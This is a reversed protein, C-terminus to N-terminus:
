VRWPERGPPHTLLQNAADSNLFRERHPDWQLREGTSVAIHGLQCLSTARHGVEVDEMTQSRTKVCDIFDRKENKLPFRVADPGLESTLLSKSEATLEDPGYDVHIWGESGEFRVYPRKGGTPPVVTYLLRVGNAYRYQVEFGLLVNWLGEAPPFNGTGQVEVPGSRETGNAWQAVDALHHGWNVITGNCYDQNAYWGPRGYSKRPHVRKETYPKMPAPGLWLDYDLEDPVPMDPQQALPENWNPVAMRITQLEGIRGNIVLECARHFLPISRFESDTRFVCDHKRITDSLIRGEAVCLSLPKECCVDKGARAAAIAMPVHWHDPTSIMVADVDNRALVDRFDTYRRCAELTKADDATGGHQNAVRLPATDLRWRDVDCLAVVETDPWRLFVTLNRAMAQRGLALMGVTIRNSPAVQDNAGLVSSPVVAPGAGAV